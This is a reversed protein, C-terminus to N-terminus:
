LTRLFASLDAVQDESLGGLDAMDHINGRDTLLTRLDPASGDHYYPASHALGILSPTDTEGFRTKGLPYQQGDTFRDGDHCADCALDKSEFLVRGRAVADADVSAPSRPPNMSMIYARLAKFDRRRLDGPFGGLRAITHHLSDDINEDQGDWKYPATGEVRGALIPTQLISKGLRWTLGDARGEPHCSSCALAGGDSLRHDRGRRFLEAGREVLEDRLTDALPPGVVTSGAVLTTDDDKVIISDLDFRYLNRSLECHVWLQDGHTAVGDVGCAGADGEVKIRWKVYPLRQSAEAVAVVVDDGYGGLFMTDHELTYALARPQHIPLETSAVRAGVSGSDQIRALRHVLPPVSEAGGGYSDEMDERPRRKLQPTALQHPAVLTDGGVFGVTFVGRAQRRGTDTPVQFRSRAETLSATTSLFDMDDDEELHVHDRPELSHWRMSPEASELDVTAVVGTTLFGVAAQTGDSSVAVGRPEPALDLQWRVALSQTDVAVLRQDSVSTVLLTKGDPTLALGHPEAVPFSREEALGQGQADGPAVQVVRDRGRDAVFVLGAGDHVIEGLQPGLSLSAVPNGERDSRVLMGANREVVLVGHEDVMVTGGHSGIHPGAAPPRVSGVASGETSVRGVSTVHPASGEANTTSLGVALLSCSAATIWRRRLM